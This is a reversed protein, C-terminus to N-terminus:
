GVGMFTGAGVSYAGVPRPLVVGRSPSSDTPRASAPLQESPPGCRVHTSAGGARPKDAPAFAPSSERPLDPEREVATRFEPRTAQPPNSSVSPTSATRDGTQRRVDALLEEIRRHVHDPLQAPGTVAQQRRGDLFGQLKAIVVILRGVVAQARPRDSEEAKEVAAFLRALMWERDMRAGVNCDNLAADIAAKVKPNRALLAANNRAAPGLSSRRSARRYAGAGSYGASMWEVFARQLPSLGRLLGLTTESWQPVDSPVPFAVEEAALPGPKRGDRGNSRGAVRGQCLSIDATM